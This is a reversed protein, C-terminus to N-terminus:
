VYNQWQNLLSPSEIQIEGIFWLETFKQEGKQEWVNKNTLANEIFFM